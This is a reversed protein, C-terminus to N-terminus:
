SKKNFLASTIANNVFDIAELSVKAKPVVIEFAHYAGNFTKFRVDVNKNKLKEVVLKTEDFFPDLTGIFSITEPLDTFDNELIPSAYKSPTNNNKLYTKWALKNLKYNWVPANNNIMSKESMTYDLMPYLAILLNICNLKNDRAKLAVSLALNGGASSGYVTINRKEKEEGNYKTNLYLLSHYSDLFANPFQGKKGIRYDPAYVIFNFKEVLRKITKIEDEPSSMIFGGGHFFLLPLNNTSNNKKFVRTRVLYNDFSKIYITSSNIGDINKNINKRTIYKAFALSVKSSNFFLKSIIGPVLLSKNIDKIKVKM